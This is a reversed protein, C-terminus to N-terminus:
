RAGLVQDDAVFQPAVVDIRGAAEEAALDLEHAVVIPAQRRGHRADIRLKDVDVLDIEQHRGIAGIQRRRHHREDPLPVAEDDADQCESAIIAEFV